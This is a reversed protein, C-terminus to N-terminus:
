DGMRRKFYKLEDLMERLEEASPTEVGHVLKNRFQHLGNFLRVDREALIGDAVFQGVVEMMTRFDTKANEDFFSREFDGWEKIFKGSLNEALEMDQPIELEERFLNFYLIKSIELYAATKDKEVTIGNASHYLQNRLRHYWEIDALEIGRIRDSCYKELLDLLKPFSQQAEELESRGIGRLGTVRKPLGLYTKIMLEVANDLSIFAIRDDFPTGSKSHEIAHLLLEKPGEM